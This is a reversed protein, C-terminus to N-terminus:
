ARRLRLVVAARRAGPTPAIVALALYVVAAIAFNAALPTSGLWRAVGVAGAAAAAPLANVAFERLVPAAHAVATFAAATLMEAVAVAVASGVIGVTPLLVLNAGVSFAATALAVRMVTGQRGRATLSQNLVSNYVGLAPLAMVIALLRASSHFASGFLAHVLQDALAAAVFAVPLVLFGLTGALAAALSASGEDGEASLRPYAATLVPATLLLFQAAIAYAAAYIGLAHAGRFAEILIADANFILQTAIGAVLFPGGSRLLARAADLSPLRLPVDFARRARRLLLADAVAGAALQAVALWVLERTVLLLAIGVGTGSVQTAVAVRAITGMREFAQFVHGISLAHVFAIAGVVATLVVVAGPLPSLLLALLLLAYLAGAVATQVVLVPAAFAPTAARNRAIERVALVSLGADTVVLLYSSVAAAFQWEGLPSPGLARSIVLTTALGLVASSVQALVLLASNWAIGRRRPAHAEVLAPEM